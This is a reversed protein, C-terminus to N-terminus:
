RERMGRYAVRLIGNLTEIARSSLSPDRRLIAAILALSDPQPAAGGDNTADQRVIFEDLSLDAWAALATVSDLDPRGGKSLRTVTSPSVGAEAALQRLSLDRVRQQAAVATYFAEADFRAAAAVDSCVRVCRSATTCHM